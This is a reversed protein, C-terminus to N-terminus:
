APLLSRSLRVRTDVVGVSWSDQKESTRNSFDWPILITFRPSNHSFPSKSPSPSSSFLPKINHLRPNLRSISIKEWQSKQIRRRFLSSPPHLACRTILDCQHRIALAPPTILSRTSPGDHHAVWSIVWAKCSPNM